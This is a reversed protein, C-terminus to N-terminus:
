TPTSSVGSSVSDAAAQRFPFVSLGSDRGHRDVCPRDAVRGRAAGLERRDQSLESDHRRDRVTSGVVLFTQEGFV